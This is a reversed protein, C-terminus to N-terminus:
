ADYRDWGFFLAMEEECEKEIDQFWSEPAYGRWKNMKPAAIIPLIRDWNLNHIELDAFLPELVKRPETVLDEFQISHHCHSKGFLFSLKWLFYFHYYPHRCWDKLFPFWHQLDRVWMRLYFKDAADFAFLDGANPGFCDPDMLTSLWQDRPNRFIHIFNAQSFTRKLWPLRFDVRNFQLVPRGPAVKILEAIYRHLDWDSSGQDMYLDREIWRDQYLHKLRDNLGDYECWYDGKVNVHTSDLREGRNDQDFWKRENLPEYYSTVGDLQRFINWLLTSGSRFRGTVFISMGVDRQLGNSRRSNPLYPNSVNSITKAAQPYSIIRNGISKNL